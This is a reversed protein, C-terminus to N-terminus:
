WGRVKTYQRALRDAEESIRQMRRNILANVSGAVSGAPVDQAKRPDPQSELFNRSIERPLTLDIEAGLPPLDLMTSTLNPVTVTSYGNYPPSEDNSTPTNLLSDSQSVLKLFPATYTVYIPLGPWGAERLIIGKGSPFVPDTSNQQWRVVKWSKIAPFTRYPPAIRYRVEIVDIFNDPLAGLDYGAFVPNYTLQAVGVRFLGNTPSSLSRLDDNIAVGIDYRSYRPNIYCLASNAHASPISGLYGRIVTATGTTATSATWGTVYLVELDISLIVGPTIGAVQAGTVPITVDASGIGGTQNIQVIRERIGGMVRRYVKEILDGFTAGSGTASGVTITDVVSAAGTGTSIWEGTLQGTIGTTNVWVEYNGASLRAIVGVAPTTASTYTVPTTYAGNNVQYAFTVTTPDVAAGTSTSTFSVDFRVVNGSLYAM